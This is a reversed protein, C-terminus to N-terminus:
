SITQFIVCLINNKLDYVLNIRAVLGSIGKRYISPCGWFYVIYFKAYYILKKM